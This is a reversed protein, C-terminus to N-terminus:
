LSNILILRLSSDLPNQYYHIVSLIMAKRPSVEIVPDISKGLELKTIRSMFM